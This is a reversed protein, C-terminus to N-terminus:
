PEAPLPPPPPPPPLEKERTEAKKKARSRCAAPIGLTTTCIGVILLLIPHGSYQPNTDPHQQYYTHVISGSLALSLGLAFLVFTVYEWHNSRM